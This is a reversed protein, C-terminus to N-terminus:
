ARMRNAAFKLEWRAFMVQAETCDPVIEVTRGDRRKERSGHERILWQTLSGDDVCVFRAIHRLSGMLRELRDVEIKASTIAAGPGNGPTRVTFDCCSRTTSRECINAQQRYYDLAEWEAQNILGRRLLTDIAPTVRRAAGATQFDNHAEREETPRMFRSAPDTTKRKAKRRAKAM